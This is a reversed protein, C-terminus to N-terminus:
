AVTPVRLLSAPVPSLHAFWRREDPLSEVRSVKLGGSRALEPVADIAVEAWPFWPSRRNGRELRARHSRAGRGPGLTEVIVTGSPAALERCRHLLRPPDGGIGINGDILLVTQWDGERPLPDFVSRQLVPAGRTRAARVAGPAPDIGLALVGLQGLGVVLRGPGCGVDLVPGAMKGLMVQEAASAEGHWRNPELALAAGGDSRLCVPGDM